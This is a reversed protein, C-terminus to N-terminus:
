RTNSQTNKAEAITIIIFLGFLIENKIKIWKSQNYFIQKSCELILKDSM